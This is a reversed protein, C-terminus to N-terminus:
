STNHNMLLYHSDTIIYHKRFLQLSDVFIFGFINKCIECSAAFATLSYRFSFYALYRLIGSCFNSFGKVVRLMLRVAFM